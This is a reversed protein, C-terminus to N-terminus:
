SAGSLFRDITRLLAQKDRRSLEEIKELRRLFRRDKAIGNPKSPQLGLLEDASVRLVKAFAAVLSGHMRIDGREYQSVLPQSLGLKVALEVQTVGRNRRIEALRRSIAKDDVPAVFKRRQALLSVEKRSLKSTTRLFLKFSYLCLLYLRAVDSCAVNKKVPKELLATPRSPPASTPDFDQCVERRRGRSILPSVPEGRTRVLLSGWSEERLGCPPV